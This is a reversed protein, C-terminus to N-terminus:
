GMVKQYQGRVRDDLTAAYIRTTRPKRHGLSDQVVEISGCKALFYTAWTHRMTHPSVKKDLGADKGLSNVINYIHRASLRGGRQNLFIPGKQRNIRNGLYEELLIAVHTPFFITRNQDGKGHLIIKREALNLDEINAQSVEERRPGTNDLFEFILRDRASLDESAIKMQTHEDRKLYKPLSRTIRPRWRKKVPVYTIYDKGACFKFFSTLIALRNNKTRKSKDVKYVDYWRKVDDSTIESVPKKFFSFFAYLFSRYVYITLPSADEAQLKRLFEEILEANRLYIRPLPKKHAM